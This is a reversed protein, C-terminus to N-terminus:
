KKLYNLIEDNMNGKRHLVDYIIEDVTNEVLLYYYSCKNVQGKRYIRDMSQYYEDYSYSLSNYIMYSCNIFTHGLGLTSPHAVVYQLEGSKFWEIIEERESQKTDGYIKRIDFHKERLYREIEDIERKFQGWILVQNYGIDDLLSEIERTKSNGIVESNGENILIGSTIERLKMIKSIHNKAAYTVNKMKIVLDKKMQKYLRLEDSSLQVYRINFTREPLDLVDEKKVCMSISKLKELFVPRMYNSLTYENYGEVTAAGNKIFYFDNGHRVKTYNIAITKEDLIGIIEDYSVAIGAMILRNLDRPNYIKTTATFYKNRFAYYSWGFVNKSLARIQCFYDAATNSAPTGSFIYIYRPSQDCYEIVKKTIGAKINKIKSSEDILLMQFNCRKLEDKMLRFSEFNIIGVRCNNMWYKYQEEGGKLKINQKLAWINQTYKLMDPMFKQIDGLWAGKIISLPCIILTKCQKQKILELGILTKGTGTDFFFGYRSKENAIELAKKQHDMLEYTKM